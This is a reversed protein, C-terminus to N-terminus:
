AAKSIAKWTRSQTKGGRLYLQTTWFKTFVGRIHHAARIRNKEKYTILYQPQKQFTTNLAIQKTRTLLTIFMERNTSVDNDQHHLNINEKDFTHQGVCREELSTQVRANFDGLLLPVGKNALRSYIDHLKGYFTRKGSEPSPATPAYVSILHILRPGQLTLRM